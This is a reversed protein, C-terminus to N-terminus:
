GVPWSVSFNVVGSSSTTLTGSSNVILVIPASGSTGSMVSFRGTQGIIFGAPLTLLDGAGTATMQGRIYAVGNICRIAPPFSANWTAGVALALNIWGTDGVIPVWGSGNNRYIVGIDTQDAYVPSEVSGAPLAALEAANRVPVIAGAAVAYPAEFIVTPAGGGSAPVNIRAYPISRAPIGTTPPTGSGAVGALYLFLVSPTASGDSEAPDNVQAYVRDIRALTAHAATVAGTPLGPASSDVSYTYSGADVSTELDLAGAHSGVTWTTSTATITTTSTGPRVGSRSGLPRAATAGALFVSATQRAQRGNYLPAGAVANVAYVTVAM